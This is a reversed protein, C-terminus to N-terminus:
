CATNLIWFIITSHWISLNIHGLKKLATQKFYPWIFINCIPCVAHMQIFYLTSFHTFIHNILMWNSYLVLNYITAKSTPQWIVSFLKYMKICVYMLKLFHPQLALKPKLHTLAREVQLWRSFVAVAWRQVLDLLRLHLFFQWM